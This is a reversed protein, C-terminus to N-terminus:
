RSFAVALLITVIVGFISVATLMISDAVRDQHSKIMLGQGKQEDSSGLLLLHLDHIHHGLDPRLHDSHRNQSSRRIALDNTKGQYFRFGCM